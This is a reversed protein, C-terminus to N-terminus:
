CRLELPPFCTASLLFKVYILNYFKNEQVGQSTLKEKDSFSVHMTQGFWLETKM